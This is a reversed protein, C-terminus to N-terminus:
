GALRASFLLREQLKALASLKSETLKNEALESETEHNVSQEATVAKFSDLANANFQASGGAILTAFSQRNQMQSLAPEYEKKAIQWLTKSTALDANSFQQAFDAIAAYGGFAATNIPAHGGALRESFALRAISEQENAKFEQESVVAKAQPKTEAFSVEHDLLKTNMPVDVGALRASFAIRADVACDDLSHSSTKFMVANEKNAKTNNMSDSTLAAFQRKGESENKNVKYHVFGMVSAMGAYTFYKPENNNVVSCSQLFKYFLNGLVRELSTTSATSQKQNRIVDSM